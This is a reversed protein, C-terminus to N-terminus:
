NQIPVYLPINKEVPIPLPESVPVPIQVPVHFPKEIAVPVPKEIIVPYPKAVSVAYPKDVKFKVPVYYPKEVTLPVNKKITVYVPYPKPIEIPVKYQVPVHRIVPYKVKKTVFYPVPKPVAVPVPRDVPITVPVPVKKIVAVPQPYPVKFPIPVEKQVPVPFPKIVRVPYPRDILIKIPVPVEKEIPVIVPVKVEKTLTFVKGYHSGYQSYSPHYYRDLPSNYNIFYNQPPYQKKRRFHHNHFRDRYKVLGRLYKEQEYDVLQGRHNVFNQPRNMVHLYDGQKVVMKNDAPKVIFRGPPVSVVRRVLASEEQIPEYVSPAHNQDEYNETSNIDASKSTTTMVTPVSINGITDNKSSVTINKNGCTLSILSAAVSLLFTRQM